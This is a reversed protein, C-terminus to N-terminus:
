NKPQTGQHNIYIEGFPFVPNSPGFTRPICLKKFYKFLQLQPLIHQPLERTQHRSQLFTLEQLNPWNRPADDCNFQSM